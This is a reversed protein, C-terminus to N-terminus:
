RGGGTTRAATAPSQVSPVSLGLAFPVLHLQECLFVCLM